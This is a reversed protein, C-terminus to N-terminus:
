QASETLAPDAKMAEMLENQFQLYILPTYYESSLQNSQNVVQTQLLEQAYTTVQHARDWDQRTIYM